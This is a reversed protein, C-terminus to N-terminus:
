RMASSPFQGIRETRHIPHWLESRSISVETDEFPLPHITSNIHNSNVFFCGCSVQDYNLPKDDIGRCHNHLSEGLKKGFEQQLQAMPLKRLDLCTRLNLNKLKLATSYGVGPLDSILIEGFYEDVFDTTLHFQGNPKAKKTAM